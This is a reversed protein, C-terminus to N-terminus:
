LGWPQGQLLTCFLCSAACLKFCPAATVYSNTCPLGLLCARQCVQASAGCGIEHLLEYEAPDRPYDPENDRHRM